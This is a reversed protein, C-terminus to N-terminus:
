IVNRLNKQLEDKAHKIYRKVTSESIDMTQSIEAIKMEDYYRMLFAARYDAPLMALARELESNEVITNYRDHPSAHVDSDVHTSLDNGGLEYRNRNVKRSLDVCTNYCIRRLYAVLLSADAIKGLNKYLAIYVEQVADEALASDKLFSTAFYLQNEVTAAYIAAFANADGGKAMTVLEGLQEHTLKKVLAGGKLLM